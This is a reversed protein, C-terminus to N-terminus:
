AECGGATPHTVPAGYSHRGVPVPPPASTPNGGCGNNLHDKDTEVQSAIGPVPKVKQHLRDPAWISATQAPGLNSIDAPSVQIGGIPGAAITPATSITSGPGFSNPIMATLGITTATVAGVAVTSALRHTWDVNAWRGLKVTREIVYAVGLLLVASLWTGSRNIYAELHKLGAWLRRRVTSVSVGLIAAIESNTRGELYALTIVHREEASLGAMGARVTHRHLASALSQWQGSSPHAAGPDEALLQRAHGHSGLRRRPDVAFKHIGNSLWSRVADMRTGDDPPGQELADPPQERFARV